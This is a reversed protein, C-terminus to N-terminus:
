DMNFSRSFKLTPIKNYITILDNRKINKNIILHKLNKLFYLDKLCSKSNIDSLELIELKEIDSITKLYKMDSDKFKKPLSLKILGSGSLYKLGPGTVNLIRLSLKNDTKLTFSWTSVHYLTLTKWTKFQTLIKLVNNNIHPGYCNIKKLTPINKLHSWGTENIKGFLSIDEILPLQALYFLKDNAKKSCNIDITKLKKLYPFNSFGKGSLNPQNLQLRELNVYNKLNNLGVDDIKTKILVLDKLNTIKGISKFHKNSFNSYSIRIGYLNSLKKLFSLNKSKFDIDFFQIRTKMNLPINNWHKKYVIKGEPDKNKMVSIYLEFRGKQISVVGLSSLLRFVNNEKIKQSYNNM